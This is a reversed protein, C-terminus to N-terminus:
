LEVLEEDDESRALWTAEDGDALSARAGRACVDGLVWCGVRGQGAGGGGGSGGGGGGGGRGYGPQGVHEHRQNAQRGLRRRQAGAHGLGQRLEPARM